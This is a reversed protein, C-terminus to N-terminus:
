NDSDFDLHFDECSLWTVTKYEVFVVNVFNCLKSYRNDYM